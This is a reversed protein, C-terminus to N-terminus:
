LPSVLSSNSLHRMLFMWWIMPLTEDYRGTRKLVDGYMTRGMVHDPRFELYFSFLEVVHTYKGKDYMKRVYLAIDDLCVGQKKM